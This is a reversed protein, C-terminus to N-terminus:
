FLKKKSNTLTKYTYPICPKLEISNSLQKSELNPHNSIKKRCCFGSSALNSINPHDSIDNRLTYKQIFQWAIQPLNTTLVYGWPQYADTLAPGQSYVLALYIIVYPINDITKWLMCRM